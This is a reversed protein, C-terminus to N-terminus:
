VRTVDSDREDVQKKQSKPPMICLLSHCFYLSFQFLFFLSCIWIHLYVIPDFDLYAYVIAFICVPARTAYAVCFTRVLSCVGEQDLEVVGSTQQSESDCLLSFFFDASCCM